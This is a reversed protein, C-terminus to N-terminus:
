QMYGALYHYNNGRGLYIFILGIIRTELQKLLM